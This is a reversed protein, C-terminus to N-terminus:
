IMLYLPAIQFKTWGILLMSGVGISLYHSEIEIANVLKIALNSLRSLLRAQLHFYM